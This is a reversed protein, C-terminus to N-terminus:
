GFIQRTTLSVSILRFISHHRGIAFTRGFSIGSPDVGHERLAGTQAAWLRRSILAGSAGGVM